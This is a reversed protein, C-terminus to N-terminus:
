GQRVDAKMGKTKSDCSVGAQIGKEALRKNLHEDDSARKAEDPLGAEHCFRAVRQVHTGKKADYENILVMTRVDGIDNQYNLMISDGPNGTVSYRGSADISVYEPESDRMWGEEAMSDDLKVMAEDMAVASLAFDCARRHAAALRQGLADANQRQRGFMPMQSYSFARLQEIESAAEAWLRPLEGRSWYAADCEEDVYDAVADPTGEPTLDHTAEIMAELENARAQLEMRAHSFLAANRELEVQMLQLQGSLSAGSMVANEWNGDAITQELTELCANVAAHSGVALADCDYLAELKKLMIRGELLTKQAYARQMATREERSHAVEDLRAGIDRTTADISAQIAQEFGSCEDMLAATFAEDDAKRLADAASESERIFDNLAEFAADTGRAAEAMRAETAERASLLAERAREAAMSAKREAEVMREHRELADKGLSGELSKLEERIHAHREAERKVYAEHASKGAKYILKAGGVAAAGTLYAIGGVVYAAGFIAEGIGFSSM